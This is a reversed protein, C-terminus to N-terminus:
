SGKLIALASKLEEYPHIMYGTFIVEGNIFIHLGNMRFSFRPKFEKCLGKLVTLFEVGNKKATENAM